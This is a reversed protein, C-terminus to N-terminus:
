LTFLLFVLLDGSNSYNEFPLLHKAYRNIRGTFVATTPIPPLPSMPAMNSRNMAMGVAAASHAPVSRSDALLCPM